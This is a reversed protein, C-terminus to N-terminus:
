RGQAGALTIAGNWDVPRPSAQCQEAAQRYRQTVRDEPRIQRCEDLEELCRDWECAQYHGIARETRRLYDLTPEDVSDRTGALERVEVAQIKGPLEIRGLNRFVFRADLDLCTTGDVLVTTGLVKNAQELRSALNVADGICTYDLKDDSGYDGVFVEGTALGIRMELATADAQSQDRDTAACGRNLEALATQAALACACAAETHGDCPWIPSNFFAFIGDGMFKNVMAGHAVLVRSMERLYRNLVLQTRRAGLRESLPTFGALDSFFCTVRAPQPALDLETTGSTIRAAVAPSTYQALARQMRRRSREEILQRYVTVCGWVMGMQVTAVLTAAHITWRSFVLAGVGLIVVALVILSMASIAPGRVCAIVTITLGAFLLLVLNLWMPARSAPRDQLVMNAMNAHAMVGPVSHFVPSTVMDAVGSATYGVLCVNGEIRPLLASRRDQSRGALRNNAEALRAELQGEGVEAYLTRVRERQAHEQPTRPEAQSWLRYVHQLWVTAEGEIRKIESELETLTQLTRALQRADPAARLDARLTRRRHILRAYDAYLTPADAHRWEVLEGLALGLRRQNERIAEANLAIELVQTAPVHDFSDQWRRSGPPVHWNLLTTGDRAVSFLRREARRGLVLSGRELRIDSGDVGLVDMAALLGLQPVLVGQARAVLPISRVVGGEREPRYSVFGVGKAARAFKDVPPTLEYANAVQANAAIQVSTSAAAVARMAEQARFAQILAERDSSLADRASAPLISELFGGPRGEPHDTLFQRAARRAVLRKAAAWHTEIVDPPMPRGANLKATAAQLDLTFDGELVAAIRVRGYLAGIDLTKAVFPFAAVLSQRFQRTTADPSERVLKLALDLAAEPDTDPPSLRFFMATYVNGARRMADRLEDDDYVFSDESRDGREPLLTDLDYHPGLGAHRLRPELPESLVLDLVIARAGLESLTEVLQAHRRRPWPWAGIAQLAHDNIDILVIRPDAEITGARRFHVDLGFADLRDFFGVAFGAGGLLAVVGGVSLGWARRKITRFVAM